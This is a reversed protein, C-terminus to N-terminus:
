GALGLQPFPSLAGDIVFLCVFVCVCLCEIYVFFLICLRIFVFICCRHAWVFVPCTLVYVVFVVFGREILFHFVFSPLPEFMFIYVVCILLRVQKHMEINLGYSM